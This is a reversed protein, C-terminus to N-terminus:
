SELWDTGQAVTPPPLRDLVKGHPNAYTGGGDHCAVQEGNEAHLQLQQVMRIICVELLTQCCPQQSAKDNM